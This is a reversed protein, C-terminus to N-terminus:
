KDRKSIDILGSRAKQEAKDTDFSVGNSDSKDFRNKRNENIIKQRELFENHRNAIIIAQHEQFRAEAELRNQKKREEYKENFETELRQKRSSALGWELVGDRFLDIWDFVSKGVVFIIFVSNLLFWPFIYYWKSEILNLFSSIWSFIFQEAPILYDTAVQYFTDVINSPFNRFM